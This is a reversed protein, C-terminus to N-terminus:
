RLTKLYALLDAWEADTLHWRPMPWSLRDGEPDVGLTIARRRSRRERDESRLRTGDPRGVM